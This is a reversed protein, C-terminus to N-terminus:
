TQHHAMVPRRPRSNRAATVANPPSPRSTAALWPFHGSSPRWCRMPSGMGRNSNIREGRAARRATGNKPATVRTPTARSARGLRCPGCRRERWAPPLRGVLRSGVSPPVHSEHVSVITADRLQLALERTRFPASGSLVDMSGGFPEPELPLAGSRWGCDAPHDCQRGARWGPSARRPTARRPPVRGRLDTGQQERM